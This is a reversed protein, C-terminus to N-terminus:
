VGGKQKIIADTYIAFGSARLEQAVYEGGMAITDNGSFFRFFLDRYYRM